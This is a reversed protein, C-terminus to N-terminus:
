RSSMRIIDLVLSSCQQMVCLTRFTRHFFLSNRLTSFHSNSVKSVSYRPTMMLLPVMQMSGTLIWLIASHGTSALFCCNCDNKPKVLKQQRNIFPYLLITLGMVWNVPFSGHFCPSACCFVKSWNFLCNASSTTNAIGISFPLNWTSASALSPAIPVTKDCSCSPFHCGMANKDLDRVM